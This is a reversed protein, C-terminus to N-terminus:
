RGALAPFSLTFTAGDGPRSEVTIRGGNAEVLSRVIALGLGSAGDASRAKDARYFRDFVHPLDEAAIGSGTDGVRLLVSRDGHEAALTVRGGSPTFRLANSLLNGLVQLMRDPDVEIRPSAEGALVTLEVGRAEAQGGYAAATQELLEQPFIPQPHLSLQGADALSLTRLDEVLRSLHQAQQHMANLTEPEAPLKGDSLAETYGLIVTLPTRLDHAIDATMQQRLQQGQLLDSSMQNFAATLEGLEDKSQVAVQRGLEGGAVAQTAETLERVPRTITQALVIGLLLAIAGAGFASLTILRRVGQLFQTEAEVRPNNREDMGQFVVFGVTEGNVQVPVPPRNGRGGNGRMDPQRADVVVQGGADLLMMPIIRMGEGDGTESGDSAVVAGVGQWSGNTEYYRALTDVVETQYRNDIFDDFQRQTQQSVLISLLVVGVLGVLLFALSLKLTLSRM